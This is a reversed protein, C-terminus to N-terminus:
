EVYVLVDDRAGATLVDEVTAPHAFGDHGVIQLGGYVDALDKLAQGCAARAANFEVIMRPKQDRILGGMGRLIDIEAGEADIKMFDVRGLEAAMADVSRAPVQIAEGLGAFHDPMRDILLANKPERYPIFFQMSDRRGDSLAVEHVTAHPTFGNVALSQGLLKAVAPNPEFATMHGEHGVLDAMLLSFYGYNAGIDVTRMGPKITRVMLEAQHLEWVGRQMVHTAFGIDTTHVFMMYRGLVWCLATRDGLYSTMCRLRIQAEVRARDGEILGHVPLRTGDFGGRGSRQQFEPSTLFGELVTQIARERGPSLPASTQGALVEADPDRGLMARYCARVLADRYSPFLSRFLKM